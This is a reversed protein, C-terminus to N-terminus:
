ADCQLEQREEEERYLYGQGFGYPRSNNRSELAVRFYYWNHPGTNEPKTVNCCQATQIDLM